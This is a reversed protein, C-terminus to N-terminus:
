KLKRLIWMKIVDQGIDMLRYGCIEFPDTTTTGAVLMGDNVGAHTSTGATPATSFCAESVEIFDGIYLRKVSMPLGAKNTFHRPDAYEMMDLEAGVAPTDVIYDANDGLEVEFEYGEVCGNADVKLAGLDVFSGNQVDEDCYGVLNCADVDWSAAHTRNVVGYNGTIIAM